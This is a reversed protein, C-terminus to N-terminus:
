RTRRESRASCILNSGYKEDADGHTRPDRRGEHQWNLSLAVPASTRTM